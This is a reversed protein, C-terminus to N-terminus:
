VQPAEDEVAMTGIRGSCVNARGRREAFRNLVEAFDQVSKEELQSHVPLLLLRSSLWEADNRAVDETKALLPHLVEGFTFFPVGTRRLEQEHLARDKMLIPFVWPCVGESLVPFLRHINETDRVIEALVMYNRRRGAIMTEWDCSELIKLSLWPMAALALDERFLYPDDVFQARPVSASDSKRVAVRRNELALLARSVSNPSNTLAQELLRKAIVVHNRFSLTSAHLAPRFVSSNMGLGGGFLTPAFKAYSFLSFHGQHGVYTGNDNTLFSHACDEVVYSDYRGAIEMFCSIDAPFGFYHIPVVAAVGQSMKRALDEFDVSLDRRVRYFQAMYGAQVVPEVLATCHFAPLMVLKRKAVSLSRLLQFFAGRANYTLFLDHPAHMKRVSHSRAATLDRFRLTPRPNPM